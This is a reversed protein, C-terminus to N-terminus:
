VAFAAKAGARRRLMGGVFGFGLIMTMWTAPEPVAGPSALKLSSLTAGDGFGANTALQNNFVGSPAPSGPAAFLNFDNSGFKGVGFGSQGVLERNLDLDAVTNFTVLQFDSPGFSGNGSRAGSVVANLNSIPGTSKGGVFSTGYDGAALNLGAHDLDFSGTVKACGSSLPTTCSFSYDFRQAAMAPTAAAVAFAAASAALVIRTKM